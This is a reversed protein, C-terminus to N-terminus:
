LQHGPRRRPGLRRRLPGPSPRRASGLRVARPAPPDRWSQGGPLRGAAGGEVLCEGAPVVGVREGASRANPRTRGNDTQRSGGSAGAVLQQRGTWRRAVGPASRSWSSRAAGTTSAFATAATRGASSSVTPASTPDDHLSCSWELQGRMM